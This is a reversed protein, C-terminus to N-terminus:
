INSKICKVRFNLWCPPKGLDWSSFFHLMNKQSLLRDASQRDCFRASSPKANKGMAFFTRRSLNFILNYRSTRWLLSALYENEKDHKAKNKEPEERREKSPDRTFSGSTSSSRYKWDFTHTTVVRERERLREKEKQAMKREV